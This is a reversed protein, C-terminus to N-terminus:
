SNALDLSVEINWGGLFDVRFSFQTYFLDPSIQNKLQMKAIPIFMSDAPSKEILKCLQQQYLEVKSKNEVTKFYFILDQYVIHLFEEYQFQEYPQGTIELMIQEARETEGLLTYCVLLNCLILIKEYPDCTLLLADSLQKTNDATAKGELIDLVAYNNLLYSEKVGGLKKAFDLVKRADFISGEYAYIMSLFVLINAGLEDRGVRHLIEIAQKYLNICEQTNNILEAYNSLLFAYELCNQYETTAIMKQAIKISEKRPQRAMKASLLCLESTLKERPSTAQKILAYILEISEENTFDLSLVAAKTARHYPNTPSYILNLNSLAEEWLGYEICLNVLLIVLKEYLRPNLCGKLQIKERYSILKNIATHPYKYSRIIKAIQPFITLLEEDSFRLYLCFLHEVADDNQTECLKRCYYEKLVRYASYLLASPSQIDLQSIISDHYIRIEGSNLVRIIKKTELEGLCMFLKQESFPPADLNGVLIRYLDEYSIPSENLYLLNVLFWNDKSLHSLRVEIPNDDLSMSKDALQIKVLNGNSRQYLARVQNEAFGPPALKKAEIYDLCKMEFFHVTANFRRLANYFSFAKDNESENETTYEFIFTTNRIHNLIDKLIELSQMDISQINDITIIFANKQLVSIIYDKKRLVSREDTPEHLTNGEGVTKDLLVDVGFSLLNKLNMAGQQLPSRINDFMKENALHALERYFANIYYLNEITDASAKCINVRFSMHDRLEDSLVKDVFASKGIGTRGAILIIKNNLTQENVMYVMKDTESTRNYFVEKSM